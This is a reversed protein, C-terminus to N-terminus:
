RASVIGENMSLTRRWSSSILFWPTNKEAIEPSRLSGVQAVRSMATM